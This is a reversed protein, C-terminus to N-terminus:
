SFTRIFEEIQNAIDRAKQRQEETLPAQPLRPAGIDTFRIKIIEKAAGCFSSLAYMQVIIHDVAGQIQQAKKIDEAQIARELTAYLEPMVGYSGGIGGDAGMLRGALYQEDPGNYIVFDDGAAKRFQLIQYANLTTNKIGYVRDIAAMKRFLEMSLNYGTTRPINYIIFPLKTSDIISLWNSEIEAESLRYYVCPVSSIADVKLSAAHKALEISDRTAVAGIHAIVTLNGTSAEVAAELTRKREDINLAFGEGTSGCVYIGDIGTKKYCDVLKKVANTSVDGQADFPTNFAIHVGRLKKLRAEDRVTKEEQNVLM